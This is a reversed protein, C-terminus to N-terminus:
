NKVFKSTWIAGEAQFTILYIGAELQGVMISKSPQNVRLVQQGLANAVIIDEILIESKFYLENGVPNPFFSIKGALRSEDTSSLLELDSAFRPLFQYGDLCGGGGGSVFQGGIGTAHFPVTPAPMNFLETDNDIRMTIPNGTPNVTSRIQVNFGTGAPAWASPNVLEM